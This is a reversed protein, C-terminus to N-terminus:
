LTVTTPAGSHIRPAKPLNKQLPIQNKKSFGMNKNKPTNKHGLKELKELNAGKGHAGITMM